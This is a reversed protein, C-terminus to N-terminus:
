PLSKILNEVNCRGNYFRWVQEPADERNTVIVQFSYGQAEFLKRQKGRKPERPDVRRRIAIM